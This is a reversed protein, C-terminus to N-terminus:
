KIIIALFILALITTIFLVAIKSLSGKYSMEKFCEDFYACNKGLCNVLKESDSIFPCILDTAWAIEEIDPLKEQDPHNLSKENDM